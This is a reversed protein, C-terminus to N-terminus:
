RKEASQQAIKTVGAPATTKGCGSRATKDNKQVWSHSKPGGRRPSDNKGGGSRATTKYGGCAPAVFVAFEGKGMM